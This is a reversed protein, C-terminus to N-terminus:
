NVFKQPRRSFALINKSKVITLRSDDILRRSQQVLAKCALRRNPFTQFDLLRKAYWRPGRMFATASSHERKELVTRKGRSAKDTLARLTQLNWNEGHRGAQEPGARRRKEV